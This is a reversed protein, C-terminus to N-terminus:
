HQFYAGTPIKSFMKYENFQSDQLFVPNEKFQVM